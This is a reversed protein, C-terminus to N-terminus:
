EHSYSLAHASLFCGTDQGKCLGIRGPRGLFDGMPTRLSRRQQDHRLHLIHFFRIPGQEYCYFGDSLDYAKMTPRQLPMCIRFVRSSTPKTLHTITRYPCANELECDQLKVKRFVVIRAYGRLIIALTAISLCISAVIRARENGNPPNDHNPTTGDPSAMASVDVATLQVALPTAYLVGRSSDHLPTRTSSLFLNPSFFFPISLSRYDHKLNRKVSTALKHSSTRCWYHMRVTQLNYNASSLRPTVTDDHEACLTLFNVLRLSFQDILTVAGVVGPAM